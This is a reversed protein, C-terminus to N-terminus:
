SQHSEKAMANDGSLANTGFHTLDIDSDPHNAFIPKHALKRMTEIGFGMRNEDWGIASAPLDSLADLYTEEDGVVFILRNEVHNFQNLLDQDQELIFGGYQMPSLLSPEAGMLLYVFGDFGSELANIIKDSTERSARDLIEGSALPDSSMLEAIKPEIELARGFLSKIDALKLIGKPVDLSSEMSVIVASLGQFDVAKDTSHIWGIVAKKAGPHTSAYEFLPRVATM